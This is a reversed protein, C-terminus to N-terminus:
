CAPRPGKPYRGLAGPKTPDPHSQTMLRGPTATGVGLGALKAHMRALGDTLRQINEHRDAMVQATAETLGRADFPKLLHPFDFQRLRQATDAHGTMLLVPTNRRAAIKALLIGSTDRLLVDILALDFYRSNLLALGAEATNAGFVESGSDRLVEDVLNCIMPENDIVAVVSM